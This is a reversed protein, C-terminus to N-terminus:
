KKAYFRDQRRVGAAIVARLILALAFVVFLGTGATWFAGAARNLPATALGVWGHEDPQSVLVSFLYCGSAAILCLALGLWRWIADYDCSPLLLIGFGAALLSVIAIPAGFEAQGLIHRIPEALGRGECGFAYLLFFAAVLAARAARARWTGPERGFSITGAFFLLLFAGGLFNVPAAGNRILSDVANAVAERPGAAASRDLGSGAFFAAAVMLVGLLVLMAVRGTSSLERRFVFASGGLAVGAGALLTIRFPFAWDQALAGGLFALVVALASLSWYVGGRLRRKTKVTVQKLRVQTSEPPPLVQPKQGALIADLDKILAAMSLYRKAPEIQLMKAVISCARPDAGPFAHELPRAPERTRKVAVEMASQGLFPLTGALMQYYTVGLSYVDTRLDLKRGEVQEPSSYEPTGLFTGEVTLGKRTPATHRALGFDTLHSKGDKSVIVNGPKVDRHIIGQQHAAALGSAVERVLRTARELSIRREKEIIGDLTDGSVYEMVLYYKGEHKGVDIVRIVNPHDIQGAAGAERFFRTVYEQDQSLSPALVKVAVTSGTPSHHARYVVGMGGAAIRLEIRCPGIKTGILTDSTSGLDGAKM